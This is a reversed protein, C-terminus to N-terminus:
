ITSVAGNELYHVLRSPDKIQHKGALSAARTQVEAKKANTAQSATTTTPTVPTTKTVMPKDAPLRLRRKLNNVFEVATALSAQRLLPAANAPIIKKNTEILGEIADRESSSKVADNAITALQAALQRDAQIAASAAKNPDTSQSLAAAAQKDKDDVVTTVASGGGADAAAAAAAQKDAEVAAAAAADGSGAGNGGGSADNAALQLAADAQDGLLERAKADAEAAMAKIREDGAGMLALLAILLKGMNLTDSENMGKERVAVAQSALRWCHWTKPNNTVAVNNIMTPIALDGDMKFAYWPSVYRIKPPKALIWEEVMPDWRVHIAWLEGEGRVELDGIWGAAKRNEPPADLSTTAHDHDICMENGRARFLEVLEEATERTMKHPGDDTVFVGAPFIRFETPASDIDASAGERDSM